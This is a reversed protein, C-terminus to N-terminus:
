QSDFSVKWRKAIRRPRSIHGMSVKSLGCSERDGRIADVSLWIKYQLTLLRRATQSKLREASENLSGPESMHSRAKYEGYKEDPSAFAPLYKTGGSQYTYEHSRFCFSGCVRALGLGPESGADDGHFDGDNEDGADHDDPAAFQLLVGDLLEEIPFM